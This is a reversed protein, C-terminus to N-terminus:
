QDVDIQAVALESSADPEEMGASQRTLTLSRSGPLSNATAWISTSWAARVPSDRGTVRYSPSLVKIPEVTTRPSTSPVTSYVPILVKKPLVAARSAFVSSNDLTCYRSIEITLFKVIRDIM